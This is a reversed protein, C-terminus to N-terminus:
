TGTKGDDGDEGEGEADTGIGGDKLEDVGNAEAGNRDLVGLLQSVMRIASRWQLEPWNELWYEWSVNAM